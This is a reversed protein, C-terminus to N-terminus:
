QVLFLLTTSGRSFAGGNFADAFAPEVERKEDGRKTM